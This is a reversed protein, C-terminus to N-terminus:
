RRPGPAPGIRFPDPEGLVAARLSRLSYAVKDRMAEETFFATHPTLLVNPMARLAAMDRGAIVLGKCDRYYLPGEGDMVDLACGALRGSELASLLAQTDVLSARAMNVLVSGEKMRAFAGADLFHGTEASAPLHLTLVDSRALLDQKSVREALDEIDPPARRSITLLRCGFSSLQRVVASGIHGAGAVGVTRGRLERGRVGRLSFDQVDYRSLIIRMRRLCMLMTMVTYEAVTWPTYNVNSFGIGLEHLAAADVHEWGATRTSVARVGLDHWARALSADVPTTVVSVGDCGAALGATELTPRRPTLAVECELREAEARFLAEEDPHCSYALFRM